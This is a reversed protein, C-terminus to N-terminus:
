APQVSRPARPSRAIREADRLQPATRPTVTISSLIWRYYPAIRWFPIVRRSAMIKPLESLGSALGRLTSVIGNRRRLVISAVIRRGVHMAVFMSALPIPMFSFVTLVCHRIFMESVVPKAFVRPAHRHVLALEPVYVITIEHYLLELALHLEEGWLFILPDYGRTRQIAESRFCMGNGIVSLGEFGWNGIRRRAVRSFDGWETEGTYQNISRMCIAGIRPMHEMIEVARRITYDDAPTCDEDFHFVYRESRDLLVSNRAAAGINRKLSVVEVESGYRALVKERTGDTSANDIVRIHLRDRPYDTAVLVDLTLLLDDARNYTLIGIAIAPLDEDPIRPVASALADHPSHMLRFTNGSTHERRVPLGDLFLRSGNIHSGGQVDNVNAVASM